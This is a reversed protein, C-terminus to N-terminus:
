VNVVGAWGVAGRLREAPAGDKEGFGRAPARSVIRMGIVRLSVPAPRTEPVATQETLIPVTGAADTTPEIREPAAYQLSRIGADACPFVSRPVTLTCKLFADAVLANEACM